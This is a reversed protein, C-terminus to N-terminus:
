VTVTVFELPQEEVEWAIVTDTKSAIIGSKPPLVLVLITLKWFVNYMALHVALAVPFIFIDFWVKFWLWTADYVILQPSPFVVFM